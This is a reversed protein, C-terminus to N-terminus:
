FRLPNLPGPCGQVEGPDNQPSREVKMSRQEEEGEYGM